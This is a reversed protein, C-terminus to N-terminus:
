WVDGERWECVIEDDLNLPPTSSTALIMIGGDDEPTREIGEATRVATPGRWLTWGLRAYFSVEGTSLAGLEYRERIIDGIEQMVLTGFGRGQDRPWTGVAEVYGTRIPRGGIELTRPVVSAHSVAVGNEEAIVHIGGKGHDWDHDSFHGKRFAADVLRRLM